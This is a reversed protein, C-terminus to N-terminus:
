SRKGDGGGGPPEDNLRPTNESANRVSVVTANKIRRKVSWYRVLSFAFTLALILLDDIPTPFDVPWILYFLGVLLPLFARRVAMRADEESMKLPPPFVRNGNEDGKQDM